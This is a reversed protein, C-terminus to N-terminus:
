GARRARARTGRWGASRTGPQRLTRRRARARSRGSPEPRGAPSQSVAFGSAVLGYCPLPRVALCHPRRASASLWLHSRDSVSFMGVRQRLGKGNIWLTSLSSSTRTRLPIECAATQNAPHTGTEPSPWPGRPPWPEIFWCYRTNELALRNPTMFIAWSTFDNV